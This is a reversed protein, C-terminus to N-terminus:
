ASSPMRSKTPDRPSPSTYLLCTYSNYANPFTGYLAPQPLCDSTTTLARSVTNLNSSAVSGGGSILSPDPDYEPNNVPATASAIFINPAVTYGVGPNTITAGTVQGNEVIATAAAGSGGGGTFTIAPLGLPNYGAGGNTRDRICM